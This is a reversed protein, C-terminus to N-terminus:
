AVGTKTPFRRCISNLRWGDRSSVYTPAESPHGISTRLLSKSHLAIKGKIARLADYGTVITERTSVVVKMVLPRIV